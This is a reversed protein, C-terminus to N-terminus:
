GRRVGRSGQVADAAAFGPMAIERPSRPPGCLRPSDAHQSDHRNRKVFMESNAMQEKYTKGLEKAIRALADWGKADDYYGRV